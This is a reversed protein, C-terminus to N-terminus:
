RTPQQRQRLIDKIEVMSQHLGDVKAELRIVREAQPAAALQAKELHDVRASQNSAWWVFTMTQVIFGALLTVLVAVPVKREVHWAEPKPEAM